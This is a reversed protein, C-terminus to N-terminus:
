RVVITGTMGPHLECLYSIRGARKTTYSFAGGGEVTGSDFGAGDMATVTHAIADGNTWRITEGVAAEIQAPAFQSGAMDVNLGSRAAPPPASKAAYQPASAAAPAPDDDSGCAAVLPVAAVALLCSLRRLSRPM